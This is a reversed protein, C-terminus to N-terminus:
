CYPFQTSVTHVNQISLIPFIYASIIPFNHSVDAKSVIPFINKLVLFM